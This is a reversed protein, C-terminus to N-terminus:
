SDVYIFNKGKKVRFYTQKSYLPSLEPYNVKTLNMESPEDKMYGDKMAWIKKDATECEEDKNSIDLVSSKFSRDKETQHKAMFLFNAKELSTGAGNVINQITLFKLFIDM